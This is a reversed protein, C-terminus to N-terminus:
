VSCMIIFYDEGDNIKKLGSSWLTKMPMDKITIGVIKKIIFNM